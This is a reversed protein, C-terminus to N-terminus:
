IDDLALERSLHEVHGVFHLVLQFSCHILKEACIGLRPLRDTEEIGDGM